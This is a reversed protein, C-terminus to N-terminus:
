PHQILHPALEKGCEECKTSGHPNKHACDPCKIQSRDESLRGDRVGDLEDMKKAWDNFEEEMIVGKDLLLVLLTQIVLNQQEVMEQLSEIDSCDNSEDPSFSKMLARAASLHGVGM